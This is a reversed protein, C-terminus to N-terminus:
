SKLPVPPCSQCGNPHRLGVSSEGGFNRSFRIYKWRHDDQSTKEIWFETNDESHNDILIFEFHYNPLDKTISDLRIRLEKINEEENKAPIVISILKVQHIDM